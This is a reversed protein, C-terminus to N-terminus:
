LKRTFGKNAFCQNLQAVVGSLCGTNVRTTDSIIMKISGWADYEDLLMELPKRIDNASGSECTLVGIFLSRRENTLCVAQFEEGNIRKEDFHLCFEESSINEKIKKKIKESERIVSRWISTQNPTPVKIGENSMSQFVNAM